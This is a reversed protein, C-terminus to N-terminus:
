PPVMRWGKLHLELVRSKVPDFKFHDVYEGNFKMTPNIQDRSVSVPEIGPYFDVYNLRM